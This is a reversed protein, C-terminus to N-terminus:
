FTLVSVCVLMRWKHACRRRSQGSCWCELRLDPNADLEATTTTKPYMGLSEMVLRVAVSGHEWYKYTHPFEANRTDMNDILKGTEDDRQVRLGLQEDSEDCCHSRVDEWGFVGRNCATCRFVIAALELDKFTQTKTLDSTFFPDKAALVRKRLRTRTQEFESALTEGLGEMCASFDALSVTRNSDAGVLTALEPKRCIHHVQPMLRWETPPIHHFKFQAYLEDVMQRRRIKLKIWEKAERERQSAQIEPELAAHITQWASNSPINLFSACLSTM